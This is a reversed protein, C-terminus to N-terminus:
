CLPLCTTRHLAEEERLTTGEIVLFAEEALKAATVMGAPLEDKMLLAPSFSFM